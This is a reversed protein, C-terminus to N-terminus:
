ELRVAGTFPRDAGDARNRNPRPHLSKSLRSFGTRLGAATSNSM